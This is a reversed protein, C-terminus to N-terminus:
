DAVIAGTSALLSVSGIRRGSSQFGTISWIPAANPGRKRLVLDAAALRQGRNSFHRQARQWADGSDIRVRHVSIPSSDRLLTRPNITVRESLIQGRSVRVSMTSGGRLTNRTIITWSTPNPRADDGTVRFIGTQYRSPLARMAAVAGDRNPPSAAHTTPALVALSLLLILFRVM